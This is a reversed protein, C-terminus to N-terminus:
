SNRSCSERRETINKYVGRYGLFEKNPDFMPNANKELYVLNGNKHIACCEFCDYREKSHFIELTLKRQQDDQTPLFETFHKGVVEECTYGIIQTIAPSSYTYKGNADMEWIWVGVSEAIDRFREQEHSLADQLKKRESVDRFLILDAKKGEFTINVANIEFFLREGTKNLLELIYPDPHLGIMRKALNAMALAKSKPTLIATSFVNRGLLDERNYGLVELAKNTLDLFKGQNDLVVGPDPM